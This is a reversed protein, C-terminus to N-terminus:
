GLDFRLKTGKVEEGGAGAGTETEKFYAGYAAHTKKRVAMPFRVALKRTEVGVERLLRAFEGALM